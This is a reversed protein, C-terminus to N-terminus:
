EDINPIWAIEYLSAAENQKPLTLGQFNQHYFGRLLLYRARMVKTQEVTFIGFDPGNETQLRIEYKSDPRKIVDREVPPIDSCLQEDSQQVIDKVVLLKYAIDLDVMEATEDVNSGDIIEDPILEKLKDLLSM